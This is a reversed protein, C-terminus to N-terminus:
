RSARCLNSKTWLYFSLGAVPVNPAPPTDMSVRRTIKAASLLTQPFVASLIARIQWRRRGAFRWNELDLESDLGIMGNVRDGALERPFEPALDDKDFFTQSVRENFRFARNYLDNKTEDSLSRWGFIGALATVGGILFTRRSRSGMIKKAEAESMPASLDRKENLIKSTDNKDDAKAAVKETENKATEIERVKELLVENEANKVDKNEENM